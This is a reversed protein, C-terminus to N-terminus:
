GTWHWRIIKIKGPIKRNGSKVNSKIIIPEAYIRFDRPKRQLNRKQDHLKTVNGIILARRIKTEIPILKRAPKTLDKSTFCETHACDKQRSWQNLNPPCSIFIQRHIQQSSTNRNVWKLFSIQYWLSSPEYFYCHRLQYHDSAESAKSLMHNLRPYNFRIGDSIDSAESWPRACLNRLSAESWQHACLYRLSPSLGSVLAFNIEIFPHTCLIVLTCNSVWCDKVEFTYGHGIEWSAFRTFISDPHFTITNRWSQM